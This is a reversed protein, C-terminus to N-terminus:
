TKKVKVKKVKEEEEKVEAEVASLEEKVEVLTHLKDKLNSMKAQDLTSM